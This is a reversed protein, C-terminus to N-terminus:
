INWKQLKLKIHTFCNNCNYKIRTVQRTLSLTIDVYSVSQIYVDLIHQYTGDKERDFREVFLAKECGDENKLQGIDVNVVHDGPLLCQCALTSLYELEVLDVRSSPCLKAIHTSLQYENSIQFTGRSKVVPYKTQAGSISARSKYPNHTKNDVLPSFQIKQYPM